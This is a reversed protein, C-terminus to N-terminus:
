HYTQSKHRYDRHKRYSSNSSLNEQLINELAKKELLFLKKYNEDYACMKIEQM